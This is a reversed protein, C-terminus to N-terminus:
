VGATTTIFLGCIVLKMLSSAALIEQDDIIIVNFQQILSVVTYPTSSSPLTNPPHSCVYKNLLGVTHLSIIFMQSQIQSFGDEVCM